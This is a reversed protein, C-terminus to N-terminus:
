FIYVYWHKIVVYYQRIWGTLQNHTTREDGDNLEETNNNITRAEHRFNLLIM